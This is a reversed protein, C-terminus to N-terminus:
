CPPVTKVGVIAKRCLSCMQAVQKEYCNNCFIKEEEFVFTGGSLQCHCRYCVFHEPHWVKNMASSYSGRFIFCLISSVCRVAHLYTIFVVRNVSCCHILIAILICQLCCHMVNVCLKFIVCQQQM